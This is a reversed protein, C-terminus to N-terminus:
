QPAPHALPLLSTTDRCVIQALASLGLWLQIPQYADPSPASPAPELLWPIGMTANLVTEMYIRYREAVKPTKFAPSAWWTTDKPLPPTTTM